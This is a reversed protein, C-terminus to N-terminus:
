GLGLDARGVIRIAAEAGVSGADARGAARHALALAAQLDHPDVYFDADGYGRRQSVTRCFLAYYGQHKLSALDWFFHGTISDPILVIVQAHRPSFVMNTMAAGLIGVVIRAQSFASIQERVSMTEPYVVDFGNAVLMEIIEGENTPRRKFAAGRSVYLLGAGPSRAGPTAAREALRECFRIATESKWTPHGTIPSAYFLREFVGIEGNGGFEVVQQKAIGALALLEHFAARLAPNSTEPIALRADALDPIENLLRANPLCELLFHGYNDTHRNALLVSDGPFMRAARVKRLVFRDAHVRIFGDPEHRNVTFQEASEAIISGDLTGVVGSRTAIAAPISYLELPPVDQPRESWQLERNSYLPRPRVYRTAPHLLRSTISADGAATSAANGGRPILSRAPQITYLQAQKRELFLLAIRGTAAVLCSRMWGSFRSIKWKAVGVHRGETETFCDTQGSARQAAEESVSYVSDSRISPVRPPPLERPPRHIAPM